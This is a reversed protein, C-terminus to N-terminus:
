TNTKEDEFALARWLRLPARAGEDTEAIGRFQFTRGDWLFRNDSNLQPDERFYIVHTVEQGPQRFQIQMQPSM